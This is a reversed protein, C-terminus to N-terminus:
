QRLGCALLKKLHRAQPVGPRFERNAPYSDRDIVTVIDVFDSLDRSLGCMGALSSGIVKAIPM